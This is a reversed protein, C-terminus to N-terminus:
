PLYVHKRTCITREPAICCGPCVKGTLAAPCSHAKGCMCSVLMSGLKTCVQRHFFSQMGYKFFDALLWWFISYAWTLGM